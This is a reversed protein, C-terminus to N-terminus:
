LLIENKEEVENLITVIAVTQHKQLSGSLVGTRMIYIYLCECGSM